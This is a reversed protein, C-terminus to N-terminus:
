GGYKSDWDAKAKQYAAVAEEHKAMAADYKAKEAQVRAMEAKHKDVAAANAAMEADHQAAMDLNHQHQEAAKKAEWDNMAKGYAVENPYEARKPMDQAAAPVAVIMLAASVLTIKKLM